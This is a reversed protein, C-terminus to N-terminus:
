GVCIILLVDNSSVVISSDEKSLTRMIFIFKLRLQLLNTLLRWIKVSSKRPCIKGDVNPYSEIVKM